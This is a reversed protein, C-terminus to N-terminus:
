KILNGTFISVWKQTVSIEEVKKCTKKEGKMNVFNDSVVVEEEREKNM